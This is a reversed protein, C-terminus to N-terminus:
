WSTEVRGSRGLQALTGAATTTVAVLDDAMDDLRLSVVRALDSERPRGARGSSVPCGDLQDPGGHEVDQALRGIAQRQGAALPGWAIRGTPDGPMREVVGPLHLVPGLGPIFAPGLERLSM